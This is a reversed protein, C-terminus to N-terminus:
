QRNREYRELLYTLRPDAPDPEPLKFKGTWKSTFSELRSLKQATGESQKERDAAYALSARIDASRLERHQGLIESESQGGALWRLVDGVTIRSQRIHAPPPDVVIIDRYAAPTEEEEDERVRPTPEAHAAPPPLYPSWNFDIARATEALWWEEWGTSEHGHSKAFTDSPRRTDKNVILSAIKPLADDGMTWENLETLGERQLQQGARGHAPIGMGRLAESYAVFSQPEGKRIRGKGIEGVLFALLRGGKPGLPSVTKSKMFIPM